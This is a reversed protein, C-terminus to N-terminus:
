IVMCLPAPVQQHWSRTTRTRRPSLVVELRTEVSLIDLENNEAHIERTPSYVWMGTFRLRLTFPMEKFGGEPMQRRTM